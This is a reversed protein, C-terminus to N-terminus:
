KHWAVTFVITGIDQDSIADSQIAVNADYTLDLASDGDITAFQNNYANGSVPVNYGLLKFGYQKTNVPVAKFDTDFAALTWSNSGSLVANTVDVQGSSQNMIQANTAVTVRNDADVSVPLVTPVTVRLNAPTTTLTVKTNGSGNPEIIMNEPLEETYNVYYNGFISKHYNNNNLFDIVTNNSTYVNTQGQTNLSNYVITTVSNPITISKLNTCGNFESYGIQTVSNPIIISELSTCNMFDCGGLFIMSNPLTISTLSTCGQFVSGMFDTISNGLTVNSLNTCNSFAGSHIIKVSNPITVSTLNLCNKFAESGISTVGDEIILTNIDTGWPYNNESYANPMEGNGSITLVGNELTWTCDGTTGSEVASVSVVGVAMVSLLMVIALILSTIKKTM